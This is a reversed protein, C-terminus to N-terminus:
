MLLLTLGCLKCYTGLRLFGFLLIIAGTLFALLVAYDSGASAVYKHTLLSMIATPGITIDRTSGLVTYVFCGM